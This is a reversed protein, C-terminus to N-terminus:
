LMPQKRMVFAVRQFDGAVAAEIDGSCGALRAVQGYDKDWLLQWGRAAFWLRMDDGPEWGCFVLSEGFVHKFWLRLWFNLSWPTTQALRSPPIHSFVAASGPATLKYLMNFTRDVATETLYMVVGELITLVPRTVDLGNETLKMRLQEDGESEFDHAIYRVDPRDSIDGMSALADQKAAQSLPTDVEFWVISPATAHLRLARADFGAGLILVQTGRSRCYSQVADDIAITRLVHTATGYFLWASPRGFFLLRLLATPLASLVKDFGVYPQGALLLGYPDYGKCNLPAPLWKGLGRLAAM